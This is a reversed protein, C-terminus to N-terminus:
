FDSSLSKEIERAQAVIEELADAANAKLTLTGDDGKMFHHGIWLDLGNISLAEIEERIALAVALKGGRSKYIGALERDEMQDTIREFQRGKRGADRLGRLVGRMHGIVEERQEERVIKKNGKATELIEGIMDLFIEGADGGGIDMDFALFMAVGDTTMVERLDNHLADKESVKGALNKLPGNILPFRENLIEFERIRQTIEERENPNIHLGDVRDIFGGELHEFIEAVSPVRKNHMADKLSIASVFVPFNPHELATKVRKSLEDPTAVDETFYKLEEKVEDTLGSITKGIKVVQEAQKIRSAPVALSGDGQDALIASLRNTMMQMSPRMRERIEMQYIMAAAGDQETLRIMLQEAESEPALSERLKSMAEELPGLDAEISKRMEIIRTRHEQSTPKLVLKGSSADKTFHKDVYDELLNRMREAREHQAAGGARDKMVIRGAPTEITEKFSKLLDGSGQINGSFETVLSHFAEGPIELEDGGEQAILEVRVLAGAALCIMVLAFALCKGRAEKIGEPRTLRAIRPSLAAGRALSAGLPLTKPEAFQLLARAFEVAHRKGKEALRRDCDWEAADEFQRVSWWAVPNFWHLMAVSRAAFSKWVDARQIHGVEHELVAERQAPTLDQWPGEPIVLCYGRPLRCLMPGLSSHVKLPVKGLGRSELLAEWQTRWEGPAERTRRVAWLLALYSVLFGGSVVLIGSLYLWVLPSGPLRVASQKAGAVFPPSPANAVPAEVEPVTASVPPESIIGAPSFALSPKPDLIPLQLPIGVVVVGQALVLGWTIRHVTPSQIGFRRL